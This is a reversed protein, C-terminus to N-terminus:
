AAPEVFLAAGFTALGVRRDDQPVREQAVASHPVALDVREGFDPMDDDEVARPVALALRWRREREVVVRTREDVREVRDRLPGDHHCAERPAPHERHAQRQQLRLAQAGLHEHIRAAIGLLHTPLDLIARHEREIPARAYRPPEHVLVYRGDHEAGLRNGPPRIEHLAEEALDVPVRSHAHEVGRLGDEPTLTHRAREPSDRRRCEHEAAGLVFRSRDYAAPRDRTVDGARPEKEDRACPVERGDFLGLRHAVRHDRKHAAVKLACRNRHLRSRAPSRSREVLSCRGAAVNADQTSILREVREAAGDRAWGVHGLWVYVPRRISMARLAVYALEAAEHTAMVEADTLWAFLARTDLTGLWSLDSASTDKNAIALLRRLAQKLGGAVSAGSADYGAAIGEMLGLREVEALGVRALRSKGVGAGGLLVVVRAGGESRVSAAHDMLRRREYNRGVLPPARLLGVAGGPGALSDSPLEFPLRRSIPELRGSSVPNESPKREARPEITAVDVLTRQSDDHTKTLQAPLDFKMTDGGVVSHELAILREHLEAAFRLRKRPHPELLTDILDLVENPVYVGARPLIMPAGRRKVHFLEVLTNAELPPRGGCLESLVVGMAYLDSWPGSSEGNMQEHSMYLPTGAIGRRETSGSLPDVLTAIGFDTIKAIGQADLLVNSPKLDGHVSGCAHAAALGSVIGCFASLVCSWGPWEHVWAELDHGRVLEMALFVEGDADRGLDLLRVINPHVVQAAATAEDLMLRRMAPTKAMRAVMKVAVAVGSPRHVAEYVIGMGGEGIVRLVEYHAGDM